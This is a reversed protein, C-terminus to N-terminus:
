GGRNIIEFVFEALEQPTKVGVFMGAETMKDAMEKDYMPTNDYDLAALGIQTIGAEKFQEAIQIMGSPSGGEYFDTLLIFVTRSPNKLLQSCYKMARAINTGGGLQVSMLVEVADHVHESLDVVQTDFVVLSTELTKLSAFIGGIVAAHIISDTMSGSQDICIIVHWDKRKFTRSCFFVNDIYLKGTDKDWNKLNRRITKTFDFNKAVRVPSSQYRNKVGHVASQVERSIKEELERVVKKVINKAMALTRPSLSNKFTLLVKVLEVSPEIKELVDPDTLMYQLGYHKIADNELNKVAKDPFLRRISNLWEPVTLVAHGSPSGHRQYSKVRPRQDLVTYEDEFSYERDYLFGLAKEVDGIGENGYAEVLLKNNMGALDFGFNNEAFRGLVLRWRLVQRAKQKNLLWGPIDTQSSEEQVM